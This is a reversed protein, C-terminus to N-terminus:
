APRASGIGEARLADGFDALLDDFAVAFDKHDLVAENVTVEFVNHGNVGGEEFMEFVNERAAVNLGVVVLAKVIVARRGDLVAAAGNERDVEGVAAVHHAVGAKHVGVLDAENVFEGPVVDLLIRRESGPPGVFRQKFRILLGLGREAPRTGCIGKAGLADRFNALLDDVAQERV